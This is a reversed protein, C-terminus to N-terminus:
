TYSARVVAFPNAIAAGATMYAYFELMFSERKVFLTADYLKLNKGLFNPPGYYHVDGDIVLDDKITIIWNVGAWEKESWGRKMYEAAAPGGVEDHDWKLFEKATAQNILATVPNLRSPLRNMMKLSEALNTRSLGGSFSRWQVLGTVASAVDVTAGSILNSVQMFKGDLEASMDKVADDSTIQRIDMGRYTRLEDVDKSFRPTEIRGFPISYRDGKIWYGPPMTGFGCSIAAPIGPQRDFVKVPKDTWDQRDLEADSVTQPEMIGNVFADERLFVRTYDNLTDAGRKFLAPNESTLDEQCQRSLAQIDEVM